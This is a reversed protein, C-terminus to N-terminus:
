FNLSVRTMVQGHTLGGGFDSVLAKKLNGSDSTDSILVYDAGDATVTTKGTIATPDLTWISGSGTVTIDGKDGDSVGGSLLSVIDSWLIYKVEDGVESDVIFFTDNNDPVAKEKLRRNVSNM